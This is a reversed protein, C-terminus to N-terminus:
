LVIIEDCGVKGLNDFGFKITEDTVHIEVNKYTNLDDRVPHHTRHMKRNESTGTDNGHVHRVPLAKAFPKGNKKYKTKCVPCLYTVNTKDLFDAVVIITANEM